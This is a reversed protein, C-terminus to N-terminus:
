LNFIKSCFGANLNMVESCSVMYAFLFEGRRNAILIWFICVFNLKSFYPTRGSREYERISIFSGVQLSGLVLIFRDKVSRGFSFVGFM